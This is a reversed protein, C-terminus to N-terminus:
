DSIAVELLQVEGNAISSPTPGIKLWGLRDELKLGIYVVSNADWPGSITYDNFPAAWTNLHEHRILLPGYEWSASAEVLEESLFLRPVNSSSVAMKAESHESTIELRMDTSVSSAQIMENSITVKFDDFGDSDLDINYAGGQTQLNVVPSIPNVTISSNTLDGVKISSISKSSGDCSVITLLLSVFILFSPVKM